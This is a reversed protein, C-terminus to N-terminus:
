LLLLYIDVCNSNVHDTVTFAANSVLHAGKGREM